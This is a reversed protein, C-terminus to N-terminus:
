RVLILVALGAFFPAMRELVDGPTDPLLYFVVALAFATLISLLVGTPHLRLKALRMFVTPGFASGLAIWAFLVRSFIKEPLYLAVIVALFVLAVITLRSILLSREQLDRGLGLDHAIASAAVLLQSDATSMIASLVAALLM